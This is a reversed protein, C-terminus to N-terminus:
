TGGHPVAGPVPQKGATGFLSDIVGRRYRFINDLQPRVLVPQVLRGLPGFPLLYRVEDRILTGGDIETFTHTHHWFSYPGLLQEDVFKREPEYGTIITRWRTRFGFVRITYDILAGRQMTVPGPTLLSFGLEPPTLLELNEPRAFFSFVESVPRPVIQECILMHPKM